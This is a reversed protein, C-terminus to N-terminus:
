RIQLLILAFDATGGPAQGIDDAAGWFLGLDEQFQRHGPYSSSIRKGDLLVTARSTDPNYIYETAPVPGPLGTYIRDEVRPMNNTILHVGLKGARITFNQDLRAGLPILDLDVFGTGRWVAVRSLLRFGRHAAARKQAGTLKFYYIGQTAVEVRWATALSSADPPATEGRFTQERRYGAREPDLNGFHAMVRSADAAIAWELANSVGDRNADEDGDSVGNGDTDPRRPDLGAAREIADPIWDGDHDADAPAERLAAVLAGRDLRYAPGVKMGVSTLMRRRTDIARLVWDAAAAVDGSALRECAHAMEFTALLPHSDGTEQTLKYLALDLETKAKELDGAMTYAYGLAGMLHARQPEDRRGASHLLEAARDYQEAARAWEGREALTGALEQYGVLVDWQDGTLPQQNGPADLTRGNNVLSGIATPITAGIALSVITLVIASRLPVQRRGHTVPIEDQSKHGMEQLSMGLANILVDHMEAASRFRGEPECAVSRDIFRAFAVPVDPRVDRISRRTKAHHNQVIDRVSHGQVPYEASLMFFLLVGLSYLDTVTSAPAGDFLEPAMYLPTGTIDQVSDSATGEKWQGAGFDMLVFRGGVERMVNQAKVDRHTLGAAHVAALAVSLDMGVLAVERAGLPGQNRVIDDLTQGRLLEMWLGAEGDIVDAGHVIVVNPHRVRALLQAERIFTSQVDEPPRDLLKLAVERDLRPERARFVRGFHGAGIEEILEFPGWRPLISGPVVNQDTLRGIEALVRMQEIVRREPNTARELVAAWDVNTGDIVAAILQELASAKSEM